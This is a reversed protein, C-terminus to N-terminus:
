LFRGVEWQEKGKKDNVLYLDINQKQLLQAQQHHHQQLQLTQDDISVMIPKGGTSTTSVVIPQALQPQITYAATAGFTSVGTISIGHPIAPILFTGGALPVGTM